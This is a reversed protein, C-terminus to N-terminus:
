RSAYGVVFVTGVLPATKKRLFFLAATSKENNVMDCLQARSHRARGRSLAM